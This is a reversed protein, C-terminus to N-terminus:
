EDMVYGLIQYAFLCEEQVVDFSMNKVHAVIIIGTIMITICVLVKLIKGMIQVQTTVTTNMM